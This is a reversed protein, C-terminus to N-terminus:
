AAGLSRGSWAGVEVDPEVRGAVCSVRARRLAIRLADEDGAEAGVHPSAEDLM